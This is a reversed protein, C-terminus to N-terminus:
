FSLTQSWLPGKQPPCVNGLQPIPNKDGKGPYRISEHCTYPHQTYLKGLPMQDSGKDVEQRKLYKECWESHHQPNVAKSM